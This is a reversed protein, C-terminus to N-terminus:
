RGAWQFATTAFISAMSHDPHGTVGGEPGITMVVQPRIQRIRRALDGVVMLLPQKDLAGDPYDLVEGHSVRLIACSAEFEKRRMAALEDGSGAGGRYLLLSGGFGGAEDDPHATICLLRLM